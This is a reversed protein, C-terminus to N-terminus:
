SMAGALAENGISRLGIRVGQRDAESKHQHLKATGRIESVEIEFGVIARLMAAVKAPDTKALTWPGPRPEHADALADLQERLREEDVRRAIGDIEIAVYNWTPVQDQPHEYWNPTVYGHPGAISALIPTDDLFPAARNSRAVHFRISRGVRAIPAHVVVPGDPSSAFIHAFGVKLAHWTNDVYKVM